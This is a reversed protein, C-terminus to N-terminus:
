VGMSPQRTVTKTLHTEGAGLEEGMLDQVAGLILDQLELDLILGLLEEQIQAPPASRDVEMNRFLHTRIQVPLAQDGAPRHHTPAMNVERERTGRTQPLPTTRSQTALKQQAPDMAICPRPDSGPAKEQSPPCPPPLTHEQIHDPGQEWPPGGWGAGPTM